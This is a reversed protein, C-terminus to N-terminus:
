ATGGLMLRSWPEPGCKMLTEKRHRESQQGYVEFAAKTRAKKQKSMNKTLKIKNKKVGFFLDLFLTHTTKSFSSPKGLIELHIVYRKNIFPKPV